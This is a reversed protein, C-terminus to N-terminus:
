AGRADVCAEGAECAGSIFPASTLWEVLGTADSARYRDLNILGQVPRPTNGCATRLSAALERSGCKELGEGRVQVFAVPPLFFLCMAIFAGWALLARVSREWGRYAISDWMVEEPGPATVTRWYSENHSQLGNALSSQTVRSRLTVFATCTEQSLRRKTLTHSHAQRQRSLATATGWGWRSLGRGGRAKHYAVRQEAKVAEYNSRVSWILLGMEDVQQAKAGFQAIAAAGMLLPVIKRTRRQVPKRRRLIATWEDCKDQLALLSANYRRVLPALTRQDKVV